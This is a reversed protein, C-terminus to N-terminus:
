PIIQDVLHLLILIWISSKGGVEMVEKTRDYSHYLVSVVAMRVSLQEHRQFSRLRKESRRAAADRAAMSAVHKRTEVFTLLFFWGKM